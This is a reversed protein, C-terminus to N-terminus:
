HLQEMLQREPRITYFVQLLLARLPREFAISPRGSDAYTQHVRWRAVLVENVIRRILRLPQETPVRNELDVCSFLEGSRENSGRM